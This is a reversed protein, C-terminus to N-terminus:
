LQCHLIRLNVTVAKWESDNHLFYASSTFAALPSLRHWAFTLPTLLGAQVVWYCSWLMKTENMIPNTKATQVCQDKEKCPTGTRLTDQALQHFSQESMFLQHCLHPLCWSGLIQFLILGLTSMCFWRVLSNILAQFVDYLCLFLYRLQKYSTFRSNIYWTNVWM